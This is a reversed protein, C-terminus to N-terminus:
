AAKMSSRVPESVGPLYASRTSRSRSRNASGGAWILSAFTSRVTSPPRTTYSRVAPRYPTPDLSSLFSALAAPLPPPSPPPRPAPRRWGQGHAGGVLGRVEGPAPLEVLFAGFVRAPLHLVRLVALGAPLAADAPEAGDPRSRAPAPRHAPTGHTRARHTPPWTRRVVGRAPSPGRAPTM